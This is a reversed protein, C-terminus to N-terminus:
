EIKKYWQTPSDMPESITHVFYVELDTATTNLLKYSIDYEKQLEIVYSKCYSNKNLKASSFEKAAYEIYSDNEKEISPLNIEVDGKQTPFCFVLLDKKYSYFDVRETWKGEIAYSGSSREMVVLSLSEPTSPHFVYYFAGIPIAIIIIPLSFLTFALKKNRKFLREGFVISLTIILVLIGSMLLVMISRVVKVKKYM